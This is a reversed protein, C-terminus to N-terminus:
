FADVIDLEVKVEKVYPKPENGNIGCGPMQNYVKKTPYWMYYLRNLEDQYVVTGGDRYRDKEIVRIKEMIFLACCQMQAIPCVAQQQYYTANIGSLLTANREVFMRCFSNKEM